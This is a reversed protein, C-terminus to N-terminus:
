NENRYKVGKEQKNIARLLFDDLQEYEVSETDYLEPFIKETSIDDGNREQFVGISNLKAETMFPYLTIAFERFAKPSDHNLEELISGAMTIADQSYSFSSDDYLEKNRCLSIVADVAIENIEDTKPPALADLARAAGFHIRAAHAERNVVAKMARAERNVVAKMIVEESIRQSRDVWWGTLIAASLIALLFTSLNFRM